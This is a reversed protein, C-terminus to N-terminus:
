PPSHMITTRLIRATGPGLFSTSWEATGGPAV